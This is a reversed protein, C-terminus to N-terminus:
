GVSLCRVVVVSLFVLVPGSLLKLEACSSCLWNFCSPEGSLIVPAAQGRM